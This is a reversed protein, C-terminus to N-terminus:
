AAKRKARQHAFYATMDGSKEGEKRLREAVKDASGMAVSGSGAAIEEPATVQRKPMVKLGGELAALAYALKVPNKIQSIAALKDPNRGLAQFVLAADKAVMIIAARQVQDLSALAVQEREEIEAAAFPLRARKDRYSQEAQEFEQRVQQSQQDAASQQEEAKAKQSQWGALETEYREEDYDCSALTPKPGPEIKQPSPREAIIADRKRIEERLHKVLGTEREGSAPAAEGDFGIDFEEPQQTEATGEDGQQGGEEVQQDETLELTEGEDDAM